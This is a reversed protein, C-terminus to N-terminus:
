FCFPPRRCESRLEPRRALAEETPAPEGLHALQFGSAILGNVYSEVTRHYKVVDDVFWRTHRLGEDRYRDVPWHLYQGDHDKVWGLPHATCLPHEVSFVFSGGPKLAQFVRAVLGVYDAVYHLALSSVVLDFFQPPAAYTEIAHNEYTIAADSTLRRAEELMRCSIDVGTVSRAGKERAYRSFNGFGCGLDLINLKCLEPLLRRLAPTELASNLGTENQRLAKYGEFFTKDDYINQAVPTSVSSSPKSTMGAAM